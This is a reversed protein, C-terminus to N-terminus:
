VVIEELINYAKDFSIISVKLNDGSIKKRMELLHQAQQSAKSFSSWLVTNTGIRLWAGMKEISADFDEPQAFRDSEPFRISYFAIQGIPKQFVFRIGNPALIRFFDKATMTDAKSLISCWDGGSQRIALALSKILQHWGQVPPDNNLEM